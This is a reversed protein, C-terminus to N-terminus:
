GAPFRLALQIMGREPTLLEEFAAHRAFSRRRGTEAQPERIDDAGFEPPQRFYRGSLRRGCVVGRV